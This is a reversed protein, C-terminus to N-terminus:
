KLIVKVEIDGFKVSAGSAIQKPVNPTLKVGGVMTGNTSKLDTVLLSSGIKEITAHRRSVSPFQLILGNNKQPDASSGIVVTNSGPSFKSELSFTNPTNVAELVLTGHMASPKVPDVPLPARARLKQIALAAAAFALVSGIVVYIYFSQTNVNGLACTEAAVFKTSASELRIYDVLAKSSIAMRTAGPLGAGADDSLGGFHLGVVGGCADLVPSGSSGPGSDANHKLVRTLGFTGDTPTFDFYSQVTGYSLQADKSLTFADAVGPFSLNWIPTDVELEIGVIPLPSLNSSPTKLTAADVHEFAKYEVVPLKDGNFAVLFISVKQGTQQELEKLAAVVHANTILTNPAVAWATGAPFSDQGVSFGVRYVAERAKKVADPIDQAFTATGLGMM